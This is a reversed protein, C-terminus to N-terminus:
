QPLVSDAAESNAYAGYILNYNMAMMNHKHALNIYNQVTALYTNRNAIDNWVSDPQAVTGALPIDHKHNVDYFQLGNLHYRNLSSFLLNAGTSDTQSYASLFGYRPFRNWDSSVDIAISASDILNGNQILRIDALYGTYDVVPPLWSWSTQKTNSIPLALNGITDSCHIYTILLSDATINNNFIAKFKVSDGPTYSSKDTEIMEFLPDELVFPCQVVYHFNNFNNNYLNITM